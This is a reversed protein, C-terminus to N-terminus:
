KKNPIVYDLFYEHLRTDPTLEPHFVTALLNGQRAAVVLMKPKEEGDKKFKGPLAQEPLTSLIEVGPGVDTIMPARIFVANFNKSSNSDSNPNSKTLNDLCPIELSTHFSNIQRGFFNRDVTIDMKNLLAQGGSKTHTAHKALFITGACTGWVPKGKEVWEKLKDLMGNREAVLAMTTSEGGPIILGALGEDDLQHPERVEIAKIKRNLRTFQNIHELFAGQLALVGVKLELESM